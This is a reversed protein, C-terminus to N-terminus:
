RNELLDAAELAIAEGGCILLGRRSNAKALKVAEDLSACLQADFHYRAKELLRDTLTEEVGAPTVLFVKDFPNESMGPMAQKDKKQDEPTLGSELAAFFAEAGEEEALGIVASLHRVKAMNLVRLLAMAQQPTRCADLIVLPRQSLVRISSRNEVSALGELIADDSIEFGKKCLALALEVAIAASGAAHRGLFSLPVTYGGYDVKSAFKEAELFSIDEPDPVVLECDAKGAAVVLESLVTKPQEPATVCISEKRMVGAALAASRELSSSVGDPGIATVACVPMKPLAAALGADPLEVVALSCGAAGFCRAAVALEAAMRPLTERNSVTEVVQAFLEPDVPEGNVRIRASLPECGAHYSGTVYGAAKLEAATLATVATKGATGAVGVYDVRGAQASLASQLQEAPAFGEPLAALYANAQEMTM